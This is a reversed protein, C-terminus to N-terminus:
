QSVLESIDLIYSKRVGEHASDISIMTGDPSWRPHLDCREPGDFKWPAFFRGIRVLNQSITDYLLLHRQRAKDPYTDTIIWRGDPSYSPHGDGLTDLRGEGIIQWTGYVVNILYYRDGAEVTRGWVLIHNEDRWCYHSVMRNDLLLRLNSGDNDCVYLRSLKGDVGVWRHMFVLRGGSPSYMVHNIKHKAQGFDFRAEYACLRSLSVILDSSESDINVRWIGDQSHSMSPSFNEVRVDYGYEPRLQYLRVYNLSVYENSDPNVSQVPWPIFSSDESCKDYVRAGLMGGYLDNFILSRDSLWNLMSGQQWNWVNTASLPRFAGEHWEVVRVRGDEGRAHLVMSRMNPSWPSKDYYGFFVEANLPSCLETIYVDDDITLQFGKERHVAYNFLSYWQKAVRKTRPAGDLWRAIRREVQSYRSM